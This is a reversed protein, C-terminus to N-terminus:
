IHILSLEYAIIKGEQGESIEITITLLEKKNSSIPRFSGTKEQTLPEDPSKWVDNSM